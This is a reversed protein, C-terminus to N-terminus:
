KGQGSPAPFDNTHAPPLMFGQNPQSSMPVRPKSVLAVRPKRGTGLAKQFQTVHDNWFPCNPDKIMCEAVTMKCNCQCYQSNFNALVQAKKAESAGTFDIMTLSAETIPVPTGMPMPTPPLQTFPNPEATKVQASYRGALFAGALLFLGAIGLLIKKQLPTMPPPTPPNERSDLNDDLM